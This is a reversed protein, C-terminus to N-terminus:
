AKVTGGAVVYAEELAALTNEHQGYGAGPLSAWRSRCAHVAAAFDGAEVLAIAKASPQFESMKM